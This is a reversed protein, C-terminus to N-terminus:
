RCTDFASFGIHTQVGQMWFLPCGNVSAPRRSEDLDFSSVFSLLSQGVVRLLVKPYLFSSPLPHSLSLSLSLSHTLVVSLLRTSTSDRLQLTLQGISLYGQSSSYLTEKSTTGDIQPTSFGDNKIIGDPYFYGVFSIKLDRAQLLM